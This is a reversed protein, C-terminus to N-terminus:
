RLRTNDVGRILKLVPTILTYKNGDVAEFRPTVSAIHELFSAPTEEGREYSPMRKELFAQFVKKSTFQSRADKIAQAYQAEDRPSELQLTQPRTCASSGCIPLSAPSFGSVLSLGWVAIDVTESSSQFIGARVRLAHANAVQADACDLPLWSVSGLLNQAYM